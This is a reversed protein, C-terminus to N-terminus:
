AVTSTDTDIDPDAETDTAMFFPFLNDFYLIRGLWINELSRCVGLNMRTTVVLGHFLKLNQMRIWVRGKTMLLLLLLLAASCLLAESCHVLLLDLSCLLLSSCLLATRRQLLLREGGAAM